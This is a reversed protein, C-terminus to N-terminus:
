ELLSSVSRMQFSERVLPCKIHPFAKSYSERTHEPFQLPAGRHGMVLISPKFPGNSCSELKSKLPSPSMNDVLYFPRPGLQVSLPRKLFPIEYITTPAAATLCAALLTTLIPLYM